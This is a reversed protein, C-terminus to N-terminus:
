ERSLRASVRAGERRRGGASGRVERGAAGLVRELRERAPAAALVDEVEDGRGRIGAVADHVVQVRERGLVAHEHGEEVRVALARM